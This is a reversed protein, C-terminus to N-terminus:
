KRNVQKRLEEIQEQQHHIAKRMEELQRELHHIKEVMEAPPQHTNRGANHQRHIEHEMKEAAARFKHAEDGLGALELNEAAERLHHMKKEMKEVHENRHDRESEANKRREQGAEPRRPSPQQDRKRAGEDAPVNLVFASMLFVLGCLSIINPLTKRM